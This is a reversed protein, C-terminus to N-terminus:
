CGCYFVHGTRERDRLFLHCEEVVVFRTERRGKGGCFLLLRIYCLLTYIDVVVVVFHVAGSDNKLLLFRSGGGM